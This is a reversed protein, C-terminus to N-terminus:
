RSILVKSSKVFDAGLVSIWYIGNELRSVDIDSPEGPYLTGSFVLSGLANRMEVALPAAKVISASRDTPHSLNDSVDLPVSESEQFHDVQVHLVDSAPNPSAVLGWGGGIYFTITRGQNCPPTTVYFTVSGSYLYFSATTGSPNIYLGSPSGSQVTWNYTTGTALSVYVYGSSIGNVTYLPKSPGSNNIYTGTFSTYNQIYKVIEKYQGNSGTARITVNGSGSSTPTVTVTSNGPTSSSFTVSGAPVVSWTITGPFCVSLTHSTNPCMNTQNPTSVINPMNFVAPIGLMADERMKDGQGATFNNMCTTVTYSMYNGLNPTYPNGNNDTLPCQGNTPQYSCGVICEKTTVPDVPTDAVFDGM